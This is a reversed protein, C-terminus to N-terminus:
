LKKGMLKERGILCDPKNLFQVSKGQGTMKIKVNLLEGFCGPSVATIKGCDVEMSRVGAAVAYFGLESALYVQVDTRLKGDISLKISGDAPDFATRLTVVNQEGDMLIVAGETDVIKKIMERREM